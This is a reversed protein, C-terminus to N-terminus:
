FDGAALVSATIIKTATVAATSAVTLTDGSVLLLYPNGDSDLPLGLIAPTSSQSFANVSSTVGNSGAGAGVTVTGLLYSTGGNTISVQINQPSTDTSTLILGTIKSGNAGATYVTKQNTGDANAIQVKGNKPTQATIVSNPTLSM